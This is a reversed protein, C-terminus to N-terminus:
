GASGVRGVRVIVRDNWQGVALLFVRCAEKEDGGGVGRLLPWTDYLFFVGDDGSRGIM